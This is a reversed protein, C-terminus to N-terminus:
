SLLSKVREFYRHLFAIWYVAHFGMLYGSAFFSVAASGFFLSLQRCCLKWSGTKTFHPIMFFLPLLLFEATEYRTLLGLAVIAGSACFAWQKEQRFGKLLFFVALVVLFRYLCDRTVIVCADVMGPHCALLLSSLFTLLAKIGSMRLAHYFFVPTLAGFCYNLIRGATMFDCGTFQSLSKILWLYFPPLATANWTSPSLLMIDEYKQWNVVLNYYYVSDRRIGDDLCMAVGNAIMATVLIIWPATHSTCSIWIKDLIKSVQRRVNGSGPPVPSTRGIMKKEGSFLSRLNESFRTFRLTIVM